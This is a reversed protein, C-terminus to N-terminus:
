FKLRLFRKVKFKINSKRTQNLSFYSSNPDPLLYKLGNIMLIRMFELKKEGKNAEKSDIVEREDPYNSSNNDNSELDDHQNDEEEDEEEDDNVDDNSIEGEENENEDDDGEEEEEIQNDSNSTPLMEDDNEDDIHNISETENSNRDNIEENVHRVLTKEKEEDNESLNIFNLKLM